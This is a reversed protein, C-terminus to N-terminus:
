LGRALYVTDIGPGRDDAVREVERLRYRRALRLHADNESWTRTVLPINADHALHILAAYLDGGIGTRRARASVIITSLYLCDVEAGAIILRCRRYGALGDVRGFATALLLPHALLDREYADLSGTGSSFDEDLATRRASLPPVFEADAHHLLRRVQITEPQPFPPQHETIRHLNRM